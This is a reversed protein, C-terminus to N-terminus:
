AFLRGQAYAAEIRECAIDFYKREIEIGIFKRNINACAVGTTGSGMFPDIVSQDSVTSKNVFWIMWELPKPCPHRDEDARAFTEFGNPTRRGHPLAKGYYFIPSGMQFGWRGRGAGSPAYVFGIEYPIPYAHFLRTGPTVVARDFLDNDICCKIVQPGIENDGSIYGGSSRTHKTAKGVFDIGYPPDTVVADVKDLTPLIDLCDGHYLTADGIKVIDSM